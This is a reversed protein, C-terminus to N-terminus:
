LYLGLIALAGVGLWLGSFLAVKGVSGFLALDKNFDGQLMSFGIYLLLGAAISDCIGQWLLFTQGNTNIGGKALLVAGAAMGAPGTTSFFLALALDTVFGISRTALRAGLGMGEFFQHFFLAAVLVRFEDDSALGTTLGIIVSHVSMGLETSSAALIRMLLSQETETVVKEPSPESHHVHLTGLVYELTYMFLVALLAFLYAFAPYDENFASPMCSSAFSAAAPQLMHIMACCLIIGTGAAKGVSVVLLPLRLRPCPLGLLTSLVGLLSGALVIFVGGIHLGLDYTSITSTVCPDVTTTTAMLMTANSRMEASAFLPFTSSGQAL